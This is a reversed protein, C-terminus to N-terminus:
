SANLPWREMVPVYSTCIRDMAFPWSMTMRVQRLRPFSQAVSRLAGALEGRKAIAHLAGRESSAYITVEPVIKEEIVPPDWAQGAAKMDLGILERKEEAKKKAEERGIREGYADLDWESVRHIKGAVKFEFVSHLRTPSVYYNIGALAGRNSGFDIQTYWMRELGFQKAASTSVMGRSQAKAFSPFAAVALLAFSLLLRTPM